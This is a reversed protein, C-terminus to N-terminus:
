SRWAVGAQRGTVGGDRRHSFFLAPDSCITCLGVDHVEGVGAARLREGAIAKLDLPGADAGFAAAVDAGVEYCCAGAGPGIAARVEGGLERVAEVGNEVVGDALGRWGAHVMAVADTSILAIPLCDATLVLPALGRTATAQGDAEHLAGDATARREVRSGHVQRGQVVADLPVGVTDALIRRNRDVAADDDDTWRGLNLSAYPGESVGGRRTTFLARGGPLAIGIHDGVPEFPAPIHM